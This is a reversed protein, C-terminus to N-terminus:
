NTGTEAVYTKVFSGDRGRKYTVRMGAPATNQEATDSGQASARLAPLSPSDSRPLAMEARYPIAGHTAQPTSTGLLSTPAATAAKEEASAACVGALVFALSCVAAKAFHKM